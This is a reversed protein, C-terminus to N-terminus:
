KTEGKNKEWYELAYLAPKIYAEELEKFTINEPQTTNDWAVHHNGLKIVTHKPLTDSESKLGCDDFGLNWMKCDKEICVRHPYGTKQAAIAGATFLPCNKM